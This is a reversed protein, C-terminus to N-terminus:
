QRDDDNFISTIFYFTVLSKYFYFFSRCFIDYLKVEAVRAGKHRKNACMKRNEEQQTQQPKHNTTDCVNVINATAGQRQNITVVQVYFETYNFLM